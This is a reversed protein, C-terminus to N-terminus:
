RLLHCVVEMALQDLLLTCLHLHMGVQHHVTAEQPLLMVAEEMFQFLNLFEV